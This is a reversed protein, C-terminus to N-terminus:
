PALWYIQVRYGTYSPLELYQKILIRQQFRKSISVRRSTKLIVRPQHRRARHRYKAVSGSCCQPNPNQIDQVMRSRFYTGQGEENSSSLIGSDTCFLYYHRHVGDVSAQINWKTLFQICTDDNFQWCARCAM